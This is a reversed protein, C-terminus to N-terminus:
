YDLSEFHRAAFCVVALSFLLSAIISAAFSFGHTQLLDIRFLQAFDHDADLTHFLLLNVDAPKPLVWYATDIAWTLRQSFGGTALTDGATLLAHRGYNISWAVGWFAISGFVALSTSQTLVALLASVSFFMTFHLLLLPIAWLYGLNWVGTRLGIALLTGGVFLAANALVFGLVGAFKGGLLLWRPAPKALLVTVSRAELFSPLFGATWILTLMLGLTDAVGGALILELFRVASQKDRALPIRIAGFALRMDGTVIAVGSTAAKNTDQADRDGRPLFDPNEGPAALQAGTDVDISLAVGIALLSIALLVWAIGSARAQRFTDLALQAGIRSFERLTM